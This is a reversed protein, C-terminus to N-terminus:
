FRRQIDDRLSGGKELKKLRDDLMKVVDSLENGGNDPEAVTTLDLMTKQIQDLRRALGSLTGIIEELRIDLNGVAKRIDDIDEDLVKYSNRLSNIASSNEAYKDTLDNLRTKITPLSEDLISGIADIGDVLDDVPSKSRGM